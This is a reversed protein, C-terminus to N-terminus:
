LLGLAKFNEQCGKGIVLHDHVNIGTRAGAKVVEATMAIDAESPM